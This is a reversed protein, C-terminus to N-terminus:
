TRGALWSCAAAPIAGVIGFSLIQPLHLHLASTLLLMAISALYGVCASTAVKMGLGIKDSLFWDEVWMVLVIPLGFLYAFSWVSPASATLYRLASTPTPRPASLKVSFPPHATFPTPAGKMLAGLNVAEGTRRWGDTQVSTSISDRMLPLEIRSM